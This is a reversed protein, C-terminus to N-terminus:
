PTMRELDAPRTSPQPLGPVLVMLSGRARKSGHLPRCVARLRMGGLTVDRYRGDRARWIDGLERHPSEDIHQGILKAAGEFLNEADPNMFTVVGQEDMGFVPAPINDLMERAVLLNAEERHLHERQSTLLHQLRGNVEALERNADQVERDLRRNDDGMEKQHFAEEINARLLADDWPKTLFKYIAGENIADTASRLETFGSLVMRITEPYLEKTRRLFEVGTM